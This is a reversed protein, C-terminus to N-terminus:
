KDSRKIEAELYKSEDQDYKEDDNKTRAKDGTVLNKEELKLFVNEEWKKEDSM